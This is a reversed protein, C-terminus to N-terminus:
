AAARARGGQALPWPCGAGSPRRAAAVVAKTFTRASGVAIGRRAALVPLKANALPLTNM